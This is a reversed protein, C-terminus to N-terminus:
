FFREVIENVLWAFILIPIAIASFLIIIATTILFATVFLKIM